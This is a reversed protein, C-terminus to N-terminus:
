QEVVSTNQTLFTEIWLFDVVSFIIHDQPFGNVSVNVFNVYM